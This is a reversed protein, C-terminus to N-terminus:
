ESAISTAVTVAHISYLSKVTILKNNHAFAFTIYGLYMTHGHMCKFHQTIAPVVIYINRVYIKTKNHLIIICIDLHILPNM